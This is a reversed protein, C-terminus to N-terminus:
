STCRGTAPPSASCGPPCRRKCRTGASRGAPSTPWRRSWWCGGDGLCRACASLLRRKITGGLKRNVPHHVIRIRPDDAALKDALEGTADTSADDVILVEYGGIEGDVVLKDGIERAADVTRVITQEENWMPFLITLSEFNPRM